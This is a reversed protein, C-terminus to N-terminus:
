PRGKHVRDVVLLVAYVASGAALIVLIGEPLGLAALVLFIVTLSDRRVAFSLWGVLSRGGGQALGEAGMFFWPYRATDIPGGSSALWRYIVGQGAAVLTFTLLGLWLWPAGAGERFLGVGLGAALAAYGLDDTITDLWQGLRSTRLTVRALDGDVCDLLLGAFFLLAAGLSAWYGGLAAVAGTAVGVGLGVLTVGNPSAGLRALARTVPRSLPRALLYAVPGDHSLSKRISQYLAREAAARGARDRATVLPLPPSAVEEGRARAKVWAALDGPDYVAAADLAGAAGQTAAVEDGPDRLDPSVEVPLGFGWRELLGRWRAGDGPTVLRIGGAGSRELQRCLRVLLPLGAVKRAPAEDGAAIAM